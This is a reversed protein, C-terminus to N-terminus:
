SLWSIKSLPVTCSSAMRTDIFYDSLITLVMARSSRQETDILYQPDQCYRVVTWRRM